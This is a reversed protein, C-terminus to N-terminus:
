VKRWYHYALGVDFSQIEGAATMDYELASVDRISVGVLQYQAVKNM